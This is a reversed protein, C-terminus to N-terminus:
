FAKAQVFITLSRILTPHNTITLTDTALESTKATTERLLLSKSFLFVCIAPSLRIWGGLWVSLAEVSQLHPRVKTIMNMGMADGTQSQFRIYLNRGAVSVLLKELRAFRCLRCLFCLCSYLFHEIAENTNEAAANTGVQEHPRVGRQDNQVRGLDRALRQGRCGPLSLAAEGCSGEDHQWGPDQQPLGREDPGSACCLWCVCVCVCFCVCVCYLVEMYADDSVSLARCGRNTSAVLCGETTAMPVHFQKEDLLLPGAVGVPVPMYGIVNECCTGMVQLLVLLVPRIFVCVCFCQIWTHTECKLSM